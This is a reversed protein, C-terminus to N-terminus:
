DLKYFIKDLVEKKNVVDYSKAYRNFSTKKAHGTIEEGIETDKGKNKLKNAVSHRFSHFALKHNFGIQTKFLSFNKSLYSLTIQFLKNSSISDIYTYLYNELDKHIPVFRWSNDNKISEDEDDVIFRFYKINSDKEILIDEKTLNLIENERAGSYM